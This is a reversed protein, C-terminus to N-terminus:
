PWQERREPTCAGSVWADAIPEAAMKGLCIGLFGGCGTQMVPRSGGMERYFPAPPKAGRVCPAKEAHGTEESNLIYAAVGKKLDRDEANLPPAFPCFGPLIVGKGM